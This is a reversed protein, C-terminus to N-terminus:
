GLRNLINGIYILEPLHQDAVVKAKVRLLKTLVRDPMVLISNYCLCGRCSASCIIIINPMNM